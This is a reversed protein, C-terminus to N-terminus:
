NRTRKVTLGTAVDYAALQAVFGDFASLLSQYKAGEGELQMLAYCTAEFTSLQDPRHAKRIRYHSEPTDHLPLRPLQQLLPNRYLQKRSKRWTGDLVVLRIHAPNHLLVPAVVPPAVFGMAGDEPTEPYLLITQRPACRGIDESHFPAHLLQDLENEPFVEGVMLRSGPLCLHLLRASGKAQNVELPHQLM